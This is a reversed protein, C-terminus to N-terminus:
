EGTLASLEEPPQERAAKEAAIAAGDLVIEVASGDRLVTARLRQGTSVMELMQSGADLDGLPAGELAVLRDGPRLGWADFVRGFRGPQLDYGVFVGGPDFAPSLNLADSISVPNEVPANPPELAAITVARTAEAGQEAWNGGIEVRALRGEHELLVHDTAIASIRAGSVLMANLAYTQPQRPDTGFFALSGTPDTAVITGTLILRQGVAAVSSDNGPLPATRERPRELATPRQPRDTPKPVEGSNWSPAVVKVAVISAVMAGALATTVKSLARFKM